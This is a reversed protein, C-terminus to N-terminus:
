HTCVVHRTLATVHRWRVRIGNTTTFGWERQMAPPPPPPPAAAAHHWPQQAPCPPPAAPPVHQLGPPAPPLPPLPPLLLPYLLLRPPLVPPQRPAAAPAASPRPPPAAPAPPPMPSAAHLQGAPSPPSAASPTSPCTVGSSYLHQCAAEYQAALCRRLLLWREGQQNELQWGEDWDAQGLSVHVKGQRAGEERGRWSRAARSCWRSAATAAARASM